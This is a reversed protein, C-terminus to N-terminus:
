ATLAINFYKVFRRFIFPSHSFYLRNVNVPTAYIRHTCTTTALEDASRQRWSLFLYFSFLRFEFSGSHAPKWFRDAERITPASSDLAATPTLARKRTIHQRWLFRQKRPNQLISLTVTHQNAAIFVHVLSRKEIPIVCLIVTYINHTCKHPQRWAKHTENDRRRKLNLYIYM